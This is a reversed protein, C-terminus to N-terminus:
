GQRSKHIDQLLKEWRDVTKSLNFQQVKLKAAKAMSQKITPNVVIETIREAMDRVDLSKAIIGSVRDDIIDEASEYTNFCVPICGHAMGETLVMGWGEYLSTLCVFDAKKFFESVDSCQGEFALGKVGIKKAYDEYMERKEGHGIIAAKWETNKKSFIKWMDIFGIVNKQPDALRGVFIILKEKRNEYIDDINDFTNPNNIATLKELPFDPFYTSIRSKFKDSLLVIRDSVQAMANLENRENMLSHLHFPYPWITTILKSLKGKFSTPYTLKKVIRERGIYPFPQMHCCSIKYVNPPTRDLLFLAEPTPQQSIVVTINFGRIINLYQNLYLESNGNFNSIGFQPNNFEEQNIESPPTRLSLYYIRHGRKNLERGLLSTVREVGGRSPNIVYQFLFLINM